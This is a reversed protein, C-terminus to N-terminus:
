NREAARDTLISRYANPAEYVPVTPTDTGVRCEQRTKKRLSPQITRNVDGNWSLFLVGGDDLSAGTDDEEPPIIQSDSIFRYDASSINFCGKSTDTMFNRGPIIESFNRQALVREDPINPSEHLGIGRWLSCSNNEELGDLPYGFLDRPSNFVGKPVFVQDRDGFLRMCGPPSAFSGPKGSLNRPTGADGQSTNGEGHGVATRLIARSKLPEKQNWDFVWLRTFDGSDTMDAIVVHKVSSLRNKFQQLCKDAFLLADKSLGGCEDLTRVSTSRRWQVCDNVERAHAKPPLALTLYLLM